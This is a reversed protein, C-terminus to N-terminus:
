MATSLTKTYADVQAKAATVSDQTEDINSLVDISATYAASDADGNSASGLTSVFYQSVIIKNIIIAQSTLGDPDDGTYDIVANIFAVIFTQRTVRQNDIQDVWFALGDPDADRGLINTYITNVFETTTMSDPYDIAFQPNESFAQSINLLAATGGENSAQNKWYNFGDQDASRNFYAIYLGSIANQTIEGQIWGGLVTLRSYVGYLLPAACDAGWSVVGIQYWQDDNQYVLPGGSDGQCSDKQGAEFGACLMNDSIGGDYSAPANCLTNSIVPMDLQRLEDLFVEEPPIATNGWGIVRATIGALDGANSDILTIPTNDSPTALELLAVDNDNTDPNYDPHHIVRRVPIHDNASANSLQNIGLVVDLFPNDTDVTDYTCHAATLVWRPNILTGGCGYWGADPEFLPAIWPYAGEDAIEGGIIRTQAFSFTSSLLSFITIAVISYLAPLKIM